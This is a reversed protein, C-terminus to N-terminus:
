RAFIQTSFITGDRSDVAVAVGTRTFNGDINSLHGPSNIWGNVFTSAVSSSSYGRIGATNEGYAKYGKGFAINARNQVNDHNTVIAGGPTSISILYANHSAALAVLDSDTILAPLGSSARRSNIGNFIQNAYSQELSVNAGSNDTNPDDNVDNVIATDSPVTVVIQNGGTDSDSGGDCNVLFGLSFIGVILTLIYKNKMILVYM